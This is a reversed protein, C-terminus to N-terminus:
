KENKAFLPTLLAVLKSEDGHYAAISAAVGEDPDMLDWAIHHDSQQALLTFFVREARGNGERFPHLLNVESYYHAFKRVYNKDDLNELYEDDKLDDFIIAAAQHLYAVPAFRTEDKTMEVTRLKGAWSYISSFLRQHIAMLHKMDFDGSIPHENITAIVAVTIEAEIQDLIAQDSIDFLNRLIGTKPDIYPDKKLKYIMRNAQPARWFQNLKM